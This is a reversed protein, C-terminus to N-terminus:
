QWHCSTQKQLVDRLSRRNRQNGRCVRHWVLSTRLWTLSTPIAFLSLLLAWLLNHAAYDMRVRSAQFTPSFSNPHSNSMPHLHRACASIIWVNVQQRYQLVSSRMKYFHLLQVACTNANHAIHHVQNDFLPTHDSHCIRHICVIRWHLIHIMYLRRIQNINSIYLIPWPIM